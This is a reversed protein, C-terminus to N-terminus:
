AGAVKFNLSLARAAYQLSTKPVIIRKFSVAFISFRMEALFSMPTYFNNSNVDCM